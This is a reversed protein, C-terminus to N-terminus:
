IGGGGGLRRWVGMAQWAEAAIGLLYGTYEWGLAKANATGEVQFEKEASKCPPSGTMWSEARM